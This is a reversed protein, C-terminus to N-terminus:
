SDIFKYLENQTIYISRILYAIKLDAKYSIKSDVDQIFYYPLRDIKKDLMEFRSKLTKIDGQLNIDNQLEIDNQTIYSQLNIIDSNIKILSKYIESLNNLKVNDLFNKYESIDKIIINQHNLFSNQRFDMFSDQIIDMFDGMIKKFKINFEGLDKPLTFISVVFVLGFGIFIDFLRFLVIELFDSRIFSYVISFESMFIATFVVQKYTKFYFVLFMGLGVLIHIFITQKFLLIILLGVGFGLIGGIINDRGANKLMYRNNRSLSMVAIAIWLGHNIHWIQSIFVAISMCIALRISNLTNTNRLNISKIFEGFNPKTKTKFEIKNDNGDKIFELKSYISLISSYFIKFESNKLENLADKKFNIEQSKFIKLVEALNFALETKVSNLLKKDDISKFFESISSLVLAIEEIKYIYFIARAQNKILSSDKINISDNSFIAKFEDIREFILNLSSEFDKKDLNDAINILHNILTTISKITFTGYKVFKGVRIVGSVIGGLLLGGISDAMNIGSSEYVILGAFGTINTALLIKNLNESYNTSVGVLFMWVFVVFGLMAGLSILPEIFPVFLCSLAIYLLIFKLRDKDNAEINTLLFIGMSINVAFVAGALGFLLYGFFSSLLVSITAKISYILHFNVPDYFNKFSKIHKIM